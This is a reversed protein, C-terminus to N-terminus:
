ANRRIFLTAGASVIVPETGTNVITIRDYDCCCNRVPIDVGVNGIADAVAPTYIMLGEPVSVGGTQLQLQVPTGATAGTVNAHFSVDYIGNATMKVSATNDRWCEAGCRTRLTATDFIIPQGVAVTQEQSISVAIM